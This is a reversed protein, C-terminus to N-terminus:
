ATASPADAKAKRRKQPQFGELLKENIIFSKPVGVRRGMEKEILTQVPKTPRFVIPNM